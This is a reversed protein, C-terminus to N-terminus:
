AHIPVAKRDPRVWLEDRPVTVPPGGDAPIVTFELDSDRADNLVRLKQVTNTAPDLVRVRDHFSVNWLVLSIGAIAIGWRLAFTLWKKISQRKYIQPDM